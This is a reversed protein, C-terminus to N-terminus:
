PSAQEVGVLEVQLDKIRIEMAGGSHMQFAIV